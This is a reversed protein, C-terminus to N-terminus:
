RMCLSWTDIFSVVPDDGQSVSYLGQLMRTQMQLALMQDKKSNSKQGIEAAATILTSKFFAAFGDLRSRLEEKTMQGPVVTGKNKGSGPVACGAILIFIVLFFYVERWLHTTILRRVMMFFMSDHTKM